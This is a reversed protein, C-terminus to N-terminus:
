RLFVCPPATNPWAKPGQVKYGTEAVQMQAEFPWDTAHEGYLRIAWRGHTRRFTLDMQAIGEYRSGDNATPGVSHVGGEGGSVRHGVGPHGGTWGSAVCMWFDYYPPRLRRDAERRLRNGERVLWQHNRLVKWMFPNRVKKAIYLVHRHSKLWRITTTGHWILKNAYALEAKASMQHPSKGTTTRPLHAQAPAAVVLFAAVMPLLLKM